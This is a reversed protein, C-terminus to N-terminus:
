APTVTGTTLDILYVKSLFTLKAKHNGLFHITGSYDWSGTSTVGQSEFTADGAVIDYNDDAHVEADLFHFVNHVSSKSKPAITYNFDVWSKLRGNLTFNSNNVNLGRVKYDQVLAYNFTYGPAKGSSNLSDTLDYGVTSGNSDNCIFFYNVSGTTHTKVSDGQTYTVDLGNDTFFGCQVLSQTKLKSSSATIAASAGVGDKISAGGYAGALSQVLNKAIAAGVEDNSPGSAPKNNDTKKCASYFLSAALMVPLARQLNLKM